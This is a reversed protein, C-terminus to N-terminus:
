LLAASRPVRDAVDAWFRDIEGRLTHLFDQHMDLYTGVRTRDDWVVKHLCQEFDVCLYQLRTFVDELTDFLRPDPRPPPAPPPAPGADQAELGATLSRVRERLVDNESQFFSLKSLLAELYRESSPLLCAVLTRCPFQNETVIPGADFAMRYYGGGRVM